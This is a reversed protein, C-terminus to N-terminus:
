LLHEVLLNNLLGTIKSHFEKAQQLRKVILEAEEREDGEVKQLAEALSAEVVAIQTGATELKKAMTRLLGIRLVTPFDIEAEYYDKRDGKVWIRRVASWDQLQRVATSVSAKSVSLDRAIEDLCLPKSNLYLLAYIQGM